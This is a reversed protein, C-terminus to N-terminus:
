SAPLNILLFCTLFHIIRRGRKPKYQSPPLYCTQTSEGQRQKCTRQPYGVGAVMQHYGSTNLSVTLSHQILFVSIGMM